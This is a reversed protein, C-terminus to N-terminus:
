KWRQAQVPEIGLVLTGIPVDEVDIVVAFRRQSFPPPEGVYVRTDPYEIDKIVAQVRSGDPRELLLVDGPKFLHYQDRTFGEIALGKGRISWTQQVTFLSESM